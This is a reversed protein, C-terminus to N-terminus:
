QSHTSVVVVIRGSAIVTIDGLLRIIIILNDISIVVAIVILTIIVIALAICKIVGVRDKIYVGQL